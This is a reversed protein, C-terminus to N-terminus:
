PHHADPAHRAGLANLLAAGREADDVSVAFAKGKARVVLCEGARLMVTTGLGSLRYGWGGVQGPTRHEAYATEITEPAWRRAPWGLPGLTVRLGEDTVAAQVSACALCTVAVLALPAALPWLPDTLGAVTVAVAVAAAVGFVAALAHMWPSSTRSLWAVREGPALDARPAAGPPPADPLGRRALLIGLGAAAVAAVVVAVGWGTASRADHWDARDANARVISAQAGVLAVGLPLLVPTRWTDARRGALLAGGAVAAWILAPFLTAAWLPMSGDPRASGASWHTALRDPLRHAAALPLAILLALPVASAGLAGWPWRGSGRDAAAGGM